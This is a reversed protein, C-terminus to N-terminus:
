YSAAQTMAAGITISSGAIHDTVWGAAHFSFVRAVWTAGHDHEDAM